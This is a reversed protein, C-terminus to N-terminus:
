KVAGIKQPPRWAPWSGVAISERFRQVCSRTVADRMAGTIDSDIRADCDLALLTDEQRQDYNGDFSHEPERDDPTAVSGRDGPTVVSGACAPLECLLFLSLAFSGAAVAIMAMRGDRPAVTRLFEELRAVERL